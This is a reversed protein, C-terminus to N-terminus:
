RPRPTDGEECAHGRGGKWECVRTCGTRQVSDSHDLQCPQRGDGERAAHERVEARVHHADISGRVAGEGGRGVDERAPLAGEREVELLGLRAGHEEFEEVVRVDEEVRETRSGEFGEAEVGGGDEESAVRAEHDRPEGAEALRAREVVSGAM